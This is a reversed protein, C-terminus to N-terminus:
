RNGDIEKQLKEHELSQYIYKQDLRHICKLFREYDWDEVDNVTGYGGEV